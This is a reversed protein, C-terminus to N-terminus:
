SSVQVEANKEGPTILAKVPDATSLLKDIKIFVDVRQAKETSEGSIIAFGALYFCLIWQLTIYKAM